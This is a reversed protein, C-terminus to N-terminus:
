LLTINAVKTARNFTITAQGNGKVMIYGFYDIAVTDPVSPDLTVGEITDINQDFFGLINNEALTITATFVDGNLVMDTYKSNHSITVKTIVAEADKTKVISVKLTSINFSFTFTGAEKMIMMNAGSNSTPTVYSAGEVVDNYSQGNFTISITDIKNLEVDTIEYVNEDTANKVMTKTGVSSNSCVFSPPIVQPDPQTGGGSVKTVMIADIYEFYILTYQAADVLKIYGDNFLLKTSYNTFGYTDLLHNSPIYEQKTANYVKIESNAPLTFTTEYYELSEKSDLYSVIDSANVTSQHNLVYVMEKYADSEKSFTKKALDAKETEGKLEVQYSEGSNPAYVEDAYITKDNNIDFEVGVRLEREVRIYDNDGKTFSYTRWADSSSLDDYDYVIDNDKDVVVFADNALFNYYGYVYSNHESGFNYEVNTMQYEFTEQGSKVRLVIGDLEFGSIFLNLGNPTCHMELNASACDNHVKNEDTINGSSFFEYKVSNDAKSAIEILDNKHLEINSISWNIVSENEELLTFDSAKVGNVLLSIENSLKPIVVSSVENHNEDFYKQCGECYYYAINGDAFFTAPRAYYMAGYNHVHEEPQVPQEPETPTEPEAPVEPEPTPEAPNDAGCGSLMLALCLFPLLYKKM